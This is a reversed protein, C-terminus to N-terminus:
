WTITIALLMLHLLLNGAICGDLRGGIILWKGNHQGFAYSQVGGLNPISISELEIGIPAPQAKLGLQIFLSVALLTIIKTMITIKHICIQILPEGSLTIISVYTYM